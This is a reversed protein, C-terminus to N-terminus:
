RCECVSRNELGQQRAPHRPRHPEQHHLQIDGSGPDDVCAPICHVCQRLEGHCVQQLGSVFTETQDSVCGLNDFLAVASTLLDTFIGTTSTTPIFSYSAMANLTETQPIPSTRLACVDKITYPYPIDEDPTNKNALLTRNQVM